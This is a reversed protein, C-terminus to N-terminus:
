PVFSFSGSTLEPDGTEPDGDPLQITITTLTETTGTNTRTFTLNTLVTGSIVVTGTGPVLVSESFQLDLEADRDSEERYVYMGTVDFTEGLFEVATTYSSDNIFNITGSEGNELVNLTGGAVSSPTLDGETTTTSGGGGGCGLALSVVAALAALFAAAFTTTPVTNTHVALEGTRDAGLPGTAYGPNNM